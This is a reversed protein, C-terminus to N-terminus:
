KTEELEDLMRWILEQQLEDKSLRMVYRIVEEASNFTVDDECEDYDDEYFEDYEDYDEYDDEVTEFDVFYENEKEPHLNLYLAIMHKCVVSRDMAFPCTCESKRPHTPDVIVDYIADGSGKVRGRIRGDELQECSIVRKEYHYNIGRLM